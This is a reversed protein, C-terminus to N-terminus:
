SIAPIKLRHGPSVKAEDLIRNFTPVVTATVAKLEPVLGALQELASRFQRDQAETPVSTARAVERGLRNVRGMPLPLRGQVDRIRKSTDAIAAKVSPPLDKSEGLAKAIATMQRDLDSLTAQAPIWVKQAEYVDFLFTFHRRRDEDSIAIRPDGEVRVVVSQEVGGASLKVVYEGPLVLPGRSPQTQGLAPDGGGGFDGPVRALAADVPRSESPDIGAAPPPRPVQPPPAFRLDWVMRHLGAETSAKFERVVHGDRDQVTLRAEPVAQSLYYDLLAGFPPNAGVYTDQGMYERHQFANFSVAPRPQFLHAKSALVDGTLDELSAINTIYISRGYTGIILDRDRPHIQIDYVPVDPLGNKLQVWSGRKMSVWLGNELGAFLLEPNRLGESITRV